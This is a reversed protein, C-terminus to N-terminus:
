LNSSPAEKLRWQAPTGEGTVAGGNRKRLSVHIAAQLDKFQKRSAPVAKDAIVAAAIERTM